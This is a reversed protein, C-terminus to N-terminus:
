EKMFRWHHQLGPVHLLYIGPPLDAVDVTGALAVARRIARGGPDTLTIAGSFGNPLQVHTTAPVPHLVATTTPPDPVETAIPLLKAVFGDGSSGTLQARGALYLAGDTGHVMANVASRPAGPVTWSQRFLRTGTTDYEYLYSGIYATAVTWRDGHVLAHDMNLCHNVNGGTLTDMWLVNGQASLKALLLYPGPISAQYPGEGVAYVDGQADCRVHRVQGNVSSLGPFAFDTSWAVAGMADLQTVNFQQAHNGGVIVHGSGDSTMANNNDSTSIQLDTTWRHVGAASYAVAASYSTGNRVWMVALSDAITAVALGLGFGNWAGPIPHRVWWELAGAPTFRALAPENQGGSFSSGTLYVHGDPDLTADAFDDGTNLGPSNLVTQDLLIGTASLHQVLVDNTGTQNEFDGLAFLSGDVLRLIKWARGISDPLGQTWLPAGTPDYAAVRFETTTAPTFVGSVAVDGTSLLTLDEASHYGSLGDFLSIWETAYQAGSSRPLPAAFVALGLSLLTYRM